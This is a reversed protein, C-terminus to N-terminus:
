ESQGSGSDDRRDAEASIRRAFAGLARAREADSLEPADRGKTDTFALKSPGDLGLLKAKREMARLLRDFTPLDIRDTVVVPGSPDWRTDNWTAAWLRRIIEDIRVVELALYGGAEDTIAERIRDLERRVDKYAYAKDYGKPVDDAPFHAIVARAIAPYSAGSRRLGLVFHRREATKIRQESTRHGHRPTM